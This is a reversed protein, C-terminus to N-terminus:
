IVKGEITKVSHALLLLRNNSEAVPHAYGDDGMVYSVIEVRQTSTPSWQVIVPVGRGLDLEGERIEVACDDCYISDSFNVEIEECHQCWEQDPELYGNRDATATRAISVASDM